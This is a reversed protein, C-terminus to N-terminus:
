GFYRDREHGSMGIKQMFEEVKYEVEQELKEETPLPNKQLFDIIHQVEEEFLTLHLVYKKLTEDVPLDQLMKKLKNHSEETKWLNKLSVNAM